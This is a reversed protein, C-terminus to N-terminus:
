RDLSLELRTAPYVCCWDVLLAKSISPFVGGVGSLSLSLSLPPSSHHLFM